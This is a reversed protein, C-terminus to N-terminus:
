CLHNECPNLLALSIEATELNLETTTTLSTGVVTLTLTKYTLSLVLVLGGLVTKYYTEGVGLDDALNYVGENISITDKGLGSGLFKSTVSKFTSKLVVGSSVTGSKKDSTTKQLLDTEILYVLSVGLNISFNDGTLDSLLSVINILNILVLTRETGKKIYSTTGGGGSATDETGKLSGSISSKIDGMRLLTERSIITIRLLVIGIHV